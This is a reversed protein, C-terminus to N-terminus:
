VGGGNERIHRVLDSVEEDPLGAGMNLLATRATDLTWSLVRSKRGVPQHEASQRFWSPCMQKIKLLCCTQLARHQMVVKTEVEEWFFTIQCHNDDSHGIDRKKQSRHVRRMRAGPTECCRSCRCRPSCPFLVAQAANRVHTHTRCSYCKMAPKTRWPKTRACRWRSKM